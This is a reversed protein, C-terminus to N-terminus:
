KKRKMSKRLITLKTDIATDIGSQYRTAKNTARNLLFERAVYMDSVLFYQDSSLPKGMFLFSMEALLNVDLFFIGERLENKVCPLEDEQHDTDCYVIIHGDKQIHYFMNAGKVQCLFRDGLDEIVIGSEVANDKFMFHHLADVYIEAKDM